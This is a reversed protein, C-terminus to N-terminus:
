VCRSLLEVFGKTEMDDSSQGSTKLVMLFIKIFKKWRAQSVVAGAALVAWARHVELEVVEMLRLALVWQWGKHLLTEPLLVVQLEVRLDVPRLLVAQLEVRHAAVLLLVVERLM